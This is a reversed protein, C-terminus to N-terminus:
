SSHCTDTLFISYITDPFHRVFLYMTYAEGGEALALVNINIQFFEELEEVQDLEVGPFEGM